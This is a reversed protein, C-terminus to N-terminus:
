KQKKILSFYIFYILAYLMIGVAAGASDILVDTVSGIRGDVMSQHLEDSIAYLVSAPFSILYSVYLKKNLTVRFANSFCFGLLMYIGFHAIKRIPAHIKAILTSQDDNEKVVTSIIDTIMDESTDVTKSGTQSSFSFIIIMCALVCLWSLVIITVKKNM